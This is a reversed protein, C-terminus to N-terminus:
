KRDDQQQNGPKWPLSPTKPLPRFEPTPLADLNRIAPPPQEQEPVILMKYDIGPNPTASAIKFDIGTEPTVALIKLNPNPNPTAYPVHLHINADPPIATPPLQPLVLPPELGLPQEPQAQVMTPSATESVVRDTLGQNATSKCGITLAALLFVSVPCLLRGIM